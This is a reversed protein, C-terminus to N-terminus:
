VGIILFFFFLSDEPVPLQEPGPPFARPGVPHFPGQFPHHTSYYSVPRQTRLSAPFAGALSPNANGKPQFVLHDPCSLSGKPHGSEALVPLPATLFCISCWMHCVASVIDGVGCASQSGRLEGMLVHFRTRRGKVKAQSEQYGTSHLLLSVTVALLSDYLAGCSTPVSGRSAMLQWPVAWIGLLWWATLFGLRAWALLGGLGCSSLSVAPWVGLQTCRGLQARGM